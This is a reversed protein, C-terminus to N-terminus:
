RPAATATTCAPRNIMESVVYIFGVDSDATEGRWLRSCTRPVGTSTKLQRSAISHMKSHARPRSLLVTHMQLTCLTMVARRLGTCASAIRDAQVEPITRGSLRSMEGPHPTLVRLARNGKWDAGALCNLADADIVMPEPLNAFLRLVVGRTEDDTGIGPGIAVLTRKAALEVIRDFASSAIEGAPTEPLPEAMLEPTHSAISALASEPCAVTVLGAGARLAALGAM